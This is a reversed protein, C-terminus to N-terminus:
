IHWLYYKYSVCDTILLPNTFGNIVNRQFLFHSHNHRLYIQISLSNYAKQILYTCNSSYMFLHINQAGSIEIKFWLLICLISFFNFNFIDSFGCGFCMGHFCSRWSGAVHPLVFKGAVNQKAVVRDIRSDRRHFRGCSRYDSRRGFGQVIREAKRLGKRAASGLIREKRGVELLHTSRPSDSSPRRDRGGGMRRIQPVFFPFTFFYM